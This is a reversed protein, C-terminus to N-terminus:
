YAIHMLEHADARDKQFYLLLIRMQFGLTNMCYCLRYDMSRNSCRAIVTQATVPM